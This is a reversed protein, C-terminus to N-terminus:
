KTILGNFRLVNLIIGSLPLVIFLAKGQKLDDHVYHFHNTLVLTIMFLTILQGVDQLTISDNEFFLRFDVQIFLTCTLIFIIAYLFFDGKIMNEEEKKFLKKYITPIFLHTIIAIIIVAILLITKM